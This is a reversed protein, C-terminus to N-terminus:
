FIYPIFRKTKKMYDKLNDGPKMGEKEMQKYSFELLDELMKPMQSLIKVRAGHRIMEPTYLTALVGALMPHLEEKGRYEAMTQEYAITKVKVENEVLLDKIKNTKGALDSCLKNLMDKYEEESPLAM